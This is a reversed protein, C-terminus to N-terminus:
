RVSLKEEEELLLSASHNTDLPHHRFYELLSEEASKVNMARANKLTDCVAQPTVKELEAVERYTGLEKYKWYLRHHRENWRLKIATILQFVANVLIDQAKDDTQICYAFKKKKAYNLAYNAVHFAPGDMEIPLRSGMKYVKGIGLGFRLPVPFALKELALVIRFTAELDTLLGQFEDGKSITLPAEIYKEFEENIQVIASKMFLQTQYRNRSSLQKSGSVDGILVVYQRDDSNM